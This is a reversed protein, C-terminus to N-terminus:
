ILTPGNQYKHYLLFMQWFSSANQRETYLKNCWKSTLDHTWIFKSTHWHALTKRRIRSTVWILTCTQWENRNKLLDAMTGSWPSINGQSLSLLQLTRAWLRRLKGPAIQPNNWPAAQILCSTTVSSEKATPDRGDAVVFMPAMKKKGVSGECANAYAQSDTDTQEKAQCTTCCRCWISLHWFYLSFIHSRCWWPVSCSPLTVKKQQILM